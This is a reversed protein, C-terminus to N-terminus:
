KHWARCTQIREDTQMSRGESLQCPSLCVCECLLLVVDVGLQIARALVKSKLRLLVSRRLCVFQVASVSVPLAISINLTVFYVGRVFSQLYLLALQKCVKSDRVTSGGYKLIQPGGFFGTKRYDVCHQQQQKNEQLIM